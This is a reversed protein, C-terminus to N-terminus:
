ESREEGDPLGAAGTGTGPTDPHGLTGERFRVSVERTLAREASALAALGRDLDARKRQGDEYATPVSPLVEIGRLERAADAIAWLAKDIENAAAGLFKMTM